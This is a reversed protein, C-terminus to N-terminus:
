STPLGSLDSRSVLAPPAHATLADGLRGPDDLMHWAVRLPNAHGDVLQRWGASAPVPEKPCIELVQVTTIMRGGTSTVSGTTLKEIEDWPLLKGMDRTKIGEASVIIAPENRSLREILPAMVVGVALTVILLVAWLGLYIGPEAWVYRATFFIFALTLLAAGGLTLCAGYLSFGRKYNIRVPDAQM